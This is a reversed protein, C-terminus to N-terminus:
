LESAPPLGGKELQNWADEVADWELESLPEVESQEVALRVEENLIRL